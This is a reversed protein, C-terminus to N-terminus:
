HRRRPDTGGSHYATYANAAPPAAAEKFLRISGAIATFSLTQGQVTITQKTTSDEPLKRTEALAGHSSSQGGRPGSPLDSSQSAPSPASSPERKADQATADSAVALLVPVLVTTALRLIAPRVRM